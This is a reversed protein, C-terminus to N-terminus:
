RRKRVWRDRLGEVVAMLLIAMYTGNSMQHLQRGTVGLWQIEDFPTEWFALRLGMVPVASGWFFIMAAWFALSGLGRGWKWELWMVVLGIELFLSGAVVGAIRRDEITRFILVVALIHLGLLVLEIWTRYRGMRAKM